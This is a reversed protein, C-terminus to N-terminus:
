TPAMWTRPPDMAGPATIAATDGALRLEYVDRTLPRLATVTFREARM